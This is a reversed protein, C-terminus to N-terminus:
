NIEKSIAISSWKQLKILKKAAADKVKENSVIDTQILLQIMAQLDGLEEELHERNSIGNWKTDLGFRFVKSIAQIVEAAEEQVISMIQHSQDKM